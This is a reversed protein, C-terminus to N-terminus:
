LSSLICCAMMWHAALHPTRSALLEIANRHRYNQTDSTKRTFLSLFLLRQLLQHQSLQYDLSSNIATAILNDRTCLLIYVCSACCFTHRSDPRSTENLKDPHYDTQHVRLYITQFLIRWCRQLLFYEDVVNDWAEVINALM